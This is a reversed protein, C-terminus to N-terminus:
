QQGQRGKENAAAVAQDRDLTKAYVREFEDMRDRLGDKTKDKLLVQPISKLLWAYLLGNNAWARWRETGNANGFEGALATLDPDDHDV